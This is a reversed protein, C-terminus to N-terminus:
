GKDESAAVEIENRQSAEFSQAEIFVRTVNPHAAKIRRELRTVTSEVSSAPQADEFDLSVAVLVDRPGFHMTLLENLRSVGPEGEALRRISSRVEPQVGEGTLLSHSEYALFSATTALLVGIVISALGDMRPMGFRQGLALGTAAIVLGLLAATDEFLVTFVTPDKSSRIANVWSQQGKGTRFARFAVIWTIGEFVVGLALVSYNVWPSSVPHPHLLKDIGELVAVGAGLGFILIAVIFTWFYLQLGFGFPHETTPPKGAQRMGHLLLAQNGTDVISHIAESVMASSGTIWAAAFKSIAIVLNGALAAYIVTKSSSSAM